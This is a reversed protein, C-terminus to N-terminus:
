STSRRLWETEERESEMLDFYERAGGMLHAFYECTGRCALCYEERRHAHRDAWEYRRTEDQTDTM